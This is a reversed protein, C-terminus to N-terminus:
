VCVACVLSPECKNMYQLRVSVVIAIIIVCVNEVELGEYSFRVASLHNANSTHTITTTQIDPSVHFLASVRANLRTITHSYAMTDILVKVACLVHQM